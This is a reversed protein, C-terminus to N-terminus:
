RDRRAVGHRRQVARVQRHAPARRRHVRRARPRVARERPPERPDRRLEARPVTRELARRKPLYDFAGRKVAEIASDATKATTVFIVPIRADIARIARYVELGPRDPLHLDLLVVDPSARRVHEIGAGGSDTVAVRYEPAPFTQRVQEPVHVADDDILLLHAM